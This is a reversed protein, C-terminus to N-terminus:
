WLFNKATFYDYGFLSNAEYKCHTGVLKPEPWINGVESATSASRSHGWRVKKLKLNNSQIIYLGQQSVSYISLSDISPRKLIAKIADDDRPFRLILNTNSFTNEAWICNLVNKLISCLFSRSCVKKYHKAILSTLLKKLSPFRSSLIM